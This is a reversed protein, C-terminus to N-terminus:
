STVNSNTNPDISPLASSAAQPNRLTMRRPQKGLCRIDYVLDKSTHTLHLMSITEHPLNPECFQATKPNWIPVSLHSQWNYLAPLLHASFNQRYCAFNLAIQDSMMTGGSADIAAHYSDAWHAWLSSDARAAFIGANMHQQPALEDAVAKGYALEFREHRYSYVSSDYPYARDTHPTITLDSNQAGLSYLEVGRWNQLWVDADIWLYTDYGQFHQPLFPRATRGRLYPKERRL